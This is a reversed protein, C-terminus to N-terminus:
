PRIETDFFECCQKTAGLETRRAGAVMEEAGFGDCYKPFKRRTM